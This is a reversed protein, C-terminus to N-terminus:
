FERFVGLVGQVSFVGLVGQISRTSRTVSCELYERFVGLVGQVSFM